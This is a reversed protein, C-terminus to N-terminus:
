SEFPYFWVPNARRQPKLPMELRQPNDLAWEFQGGSGTCDTIEVTGVIVGRPLEDLSFDLDAQIDAEEDPAYRTASAYIYVKGRVNTPQSRYEISKEGRLILEAWPQRISLARLATDATSPDALETPQEDASAWSRRKKPESGAPRAHNPRRRGISPQPHADSLIKVTIDSELTHSVARDDRLRMSTVEDALQPPLCSSFKLGRIAFENAVPRLAEAGTTRLEDIAALLQDTQVIGPVKLSFGDSSVNCDFKQALYYALIANAKSGAFTWWTCGQEPDFLLSTGEPELWEFENRLREIQTQCRKSWRESTDARCLISRM